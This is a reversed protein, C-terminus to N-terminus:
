WEHYFEEEVHQIQDNNVRLLMHIKRSDAEMSNKKRM